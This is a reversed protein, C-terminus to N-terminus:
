SFAKEKVLRAFVETLTPDFHKGSQSLIYELVQDETMAKRYPRDSCLADWVDILAFMRAHLPIDEGKLGRPYGSGDWKEHHCYPIDLSSQLFKIPSLWQYAYVPHMRMVTWEEETLAGPKLLIADPVGLKGVDHLIAGMRIHEMQDACIGISQAFILSKETVRKTHGETEKDRLDLACSWGEITKHYSTLLEQHLIQLQDRQETLHRYRNLRTITQVRALLELADFPKTIFDDAGARLGELKSQRDDLATIMIIPVEMLSPVARIQRCVEFGDIQPLMVDLLIVDPSSELAMAIGELGNAVSIIRYEEDLLSSLTERIILEDDIALILPQAELETSVGFMENWPM